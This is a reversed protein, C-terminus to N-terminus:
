FEMPLRHYPYGSDRPLREQTRGGTAAQGGAAYELGGQRAGPPLREWSPLDDLTVEVPPMDAVWGLVRGVATRGLQDLSVIEITTMGGAGLKRYRDGIRAVSLDSCLAIKDLSDMLAPDFPLLGEEAVKLLYSRAGDLFRDARAVIGEQRELKMQRYEEGLDIFRGRAPGESLCLIDREATESMRRIRMELLQRRDDLEEKESALRRFLRSNRYTGMLLRNLEAASRALFTRMGAVRDKHERIGSRLRAIHREAEREMDGPNREPGSALVDAAEAGKARMETMLRLMRMLSRREFAAHMSGIRATRAERRRLALELSPELMDLYVESDPVAPNPAFRPAESLMRGIWGRGMDLVAKRYFDPTGDALYWHVAARAAGSFRRCASSESTEPQRAPPGPASPERQLEPRASASPDNQSDSRASASPENTLVPSRSELSLFPAAADAPGAVRGSSGSGAFPCPTRVFPEPVWPLTLRHVAVSCGELDMRGLAASDCVIVDLEGRGYRVLAADLAAGGRESSDASAVRSLPVGLTDAVIRRVRRQLHRDECIVAQPGTGVYGRMVGIMRDCKQGAPHTIWGEPIGARALRRMLLPEMDEPIRLFSLGGPGLRVPMKVVCRRVTRKGTLEDLRPVSWREPLTDRVAELECLSVNRFLFTSRGWLTDPDTGARDIALMLETMMASSRMWDAGSREQEGNELERACAGLRAIEDLQWKDLRVREITEGPLRVAEAAAAWDPAIGGGSGSADAGSIGEGSTWGEWGREGGWGEWGQASRMLAYPMGEPGTLGPGGRASRRVSSAPCQALDPSKASKRSCSWYSSSSYPSMHPSPSAVSYHASLSSTYPATPSFTASTPQASPEPSLIATESPPGSPEPPLIATESPPESPEPPLYTTDSDLAFQEPPLFESATLPFPLGAVPPVSASSSSSNSASASTSEESEHATSYLLFLTKASPFRIVAHGGKMAEGRCADGSGSTGPSRSVAPTRSTGRSDPTEPSGSTDPKGPYGSSWPTGSKGPYVSSGPTDPKGPYASTWPMDPTDPKGPYASTWPTDPTDPKGPYESTGPTDPTDPKGPYASTGPTDPTDPKGPYASSGPTWSADPKGSTGSVRSGDLDEPFAGAGAQRAREESWPPCAPRDSGASPEPLGNWVRVDAPLSGEGADWSLEGGEFVTWRRFLDRLAGLNRYGHLAEGEEDDEGENWHGTWVARCRGFLRRADDMAEIGLERLEGVDTVLPLVNLIDLPSAECIRSTLAFTGLGANMRRVSCAKSAMNIAVRSPRQGPLGLLNGAAESCSVSGRYLHADDTVMADFCADELSPARPDEGWGARAFSELVVEMGPCFAALGAAFSRRTFASLRMARVIEAPMVVLSACSGVARAAGDLCERTLGRGPRLGRAAHLFVAEREVVEPLFMRRCEAEWAGIKSSPACVLMRHMLGHKMGWAWLGLAAATKGGGPGFALIGRGERALVRVARNQFSRLILDGTLYEGIDLATGEAPAPLRGALTRSYMGSLFLIDEHSRIWCDFFDDLREARRMGSLKVAADGTVARGRIHNQLCDGLADYPVSFTPRGGALEFEFGFLGLYEQVYPFPIWRHQLGFEVDFPDTRPALGDLRALQRAFAERIRPDGESRLAEELRAGTRRVDGAYFRAETTFRGDPLLCLGPEGALDGPTLLPLPGAYRDRIEALTVARRAGNVVLNRVIEAPSTLDVGEFSLGRSLRSLASPGPDAFDPSASPPERPL